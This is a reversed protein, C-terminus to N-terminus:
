RGVEELEVWRALAQELEAHITEVRALVAEIHAAPSKYFESSSAEAQLQQQENELAEIRSPLAAYEREENFTRKKRELQEVRELREVRLPEESRNARNSRNARSSRVYDEWGGVYEQVAGDGEFALTSTVVNDLFARDHTVLLVTGDFTDILEELLELTEIDLDNTPEDFVLVNAARAFLRALLLRNREGGSLSGVPSRAREPPFLFDALYGLVHREQGNVIVTDGDAVSEAVTRNPDLQTRQQDFYAVQLRTGRRVEGQDPAIEGVLLQLLTTKGSGNPGILGVRDGRMIRVSLDRIIPTGGYAKSVGDVDFVMRGSSETQTLAMRASGSQARYAAREARLAMLARVRGENRTRRAKIGRRLWTEEEALKRDLRALDRAETELAAAKKDVYTDYSGPWSTLQGRDLEIIRTALRKLFARDHTVFLLAGPFDRLHAELWEIADIDLHNTPEDLLLLDPNSVLAQGLLVRRRWGGSLEAVPRDAPLALRSMITDVQHAATWGEVHPALGAAVEERVSRTDSPPIDQALRAIRLAPARWVAGADPEIDAAVVKLLTSKGSGNRGILALREGPEVRLSAREFLPLHGFALSVQELTLLPM